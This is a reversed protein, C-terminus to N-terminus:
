FVFSVVQLSMNKYKDMLCAKFILVNRVSLYLFMDRGLEMYGNQYVM